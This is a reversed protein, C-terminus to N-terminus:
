EEGGEPADKKLEFARGIRKEYQKVAKNYIVPLGANSIEGVTKVGAYGRSDNKTWTVLASAMLEESGGCIEQLIQTIAARWYLVNEKAAQTGRQVPEGKQTRGGGDPDDKKTPVHFFKLLFYKEGYTLAKGVGKEGALDVGQAYWPCKLSEGTETDYWTMTMTLETFFRVTGSKTNGERVTSGLIEPILLLGADDMLPRFRDLVNEDSAFDYKDSTNKGDKIMGDVAKQVNLLKAYLGQARDDRASRGEAACDLSTEGTGKDNRPPEAATAIREGTKQTNEEM